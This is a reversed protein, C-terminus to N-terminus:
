RRIGKSLQTEFHCAMDVVTIVRSDVAKEIAGCPLEEDEKRDDLLSLVLDTIKSYILRRTAVEGPDPPPEMPRRM